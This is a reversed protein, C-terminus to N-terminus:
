RDKRGTNGNDRRGVFPGLIGPLATRRADNRDNVAQTASADDGHGNPSCM